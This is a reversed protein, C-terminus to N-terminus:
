SHPKRGEVNRDVGDRYAAALMALIVKLENVEARSLNARDGKAFVNLLFVPIDAGGFYTIVRYGGSKGSGRGPFRVKRAGGSGPIEAGALPNAAIAEVIKGREAESVGAAKADRVFGPTEIVTQM